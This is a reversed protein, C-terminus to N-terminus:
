AALLRAELWEPLQGISGLRVYQGPTSDDMPLPEQAGPAPIYVAQGGIELVPWIDSRLSNGVMLFREPRIRHRRLIRSYTFPNKESVVELCRFYESLGSRLFRTEQDLLDGKTIVMLPYDGSLEDLVAEVEPLVRVPAALLEKTLNVLFRIHEPSIRGQTLELATEIMSLGFGKVGYGYHQINRQETEQLYRDEYSGNLYQQMLLRFQAQAEGFHAESHWLTDDADFAIYELM